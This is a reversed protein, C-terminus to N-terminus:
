VNIWRSLIIIGWNLFNQVESDVKKLGRRKAKRLKNRVYWKSRKTHKRPVVFGLHRMYKHAFKEARMENIYVDVTRARLCHYLEHCATYLSTRSKIIPIYCNYTIPSVMGSVADNKYIINYGTRRIKNEILQKAQEISLKM